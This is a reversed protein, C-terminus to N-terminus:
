NFRLKAQAAAVYSFLKGKKTGYTLSCFFIYILKEDANYGKSLCTLYSLLVLYELLFLPCRISFHLIDVQASM